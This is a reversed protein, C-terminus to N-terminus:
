SHVLFFPSVWTEDINQAWRFKEILTKSFVKELPVKSRKCWGVSIRPDIYNMKSTGLSIEKNEEKDTAQVSLVNIREEVKNIANRLKEVTWSSKTPITKAHRERELRIKMEDAALLMEKLSPGSYPEGEIKPKELLKEYKQKIKEKEKEVLIAEYAIIWEESLDPDDAMMDASKKKTSTDLALMQKRMKMREYKLARIGSAKDQFKEMQQGHLKSATRQHNCLVAVERNARNFSLLKDAVSDNEITLKDLQQQFTHSANYTRFVKASLGKMCSNLYKNLGATTLRDFIMHGAGVQKKFIKINKFVQIDVEVKNQYRISDKGLFDFHLINPAELDIHEYRLSCCGVTDAEDDGKENGARLALRDILYMATARQRIESLRHKMEATYNSRIKSVYKKLERAKEFKQMDSQGKWASSAALFVYKFSGNVNEKWTALWTATQDHVISAWKHGAPPAPVKATHGLNVTVQEPQVRKKLTGTKPHDGRGRFLGPPEIRFNGVKEKRGDVFAYLFPQELAVKEQKARLKEDKTYQKKKEKDKEFKEWIPRFDCKKFKEIKPNQPDQRLVEQWDRFFNKQFTPNKAHDTELLAAFFSAVEEAEPALSIPRGDYRMKVNHPIYVPPFLVGSHELTTWKITGDAEEDKQIEEEWWKYVNEEEEKVKKVRKLEPTGDDASKVSSKARKAPVRTNGSSKKAALKKLPVEVEMPETKVTHEKIKMPRSHTAISQSMYVIKEMTRSLHTSDGGGRRNMHHLTPWGIRQGCSAWHHLLRISRM